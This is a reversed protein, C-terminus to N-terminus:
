ENLVRKVIKLAWYIPYIVVAIQYHSDIFYGLVYAWDSSTM